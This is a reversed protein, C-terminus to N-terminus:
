VLFESCAESPLTPSSSCFGLCSRRRLSVHSSSIKSSGAFFSASLYLQVRCLRKVPKYTPSRLALAHWIDVILFRNLARGNKTIASPKSNRFLNSYFSPISHESILASGTFCLGFNEAPFHEHPLIRLRPWWYLQFGPCDVQLLSMSNGEWALNPSGPLSTLATRRANSTPWLLPSALAPYCTRYLRPTRLIPYPHGPVTNCVYIEWARGLVFKLKWNWDTHKKLLYQEERKSSPTPSPLILGPLSDQSANEGGDQRIQYSLSQIAVSPATVMADPHGLFIPLSWVTTLEPIHRSLVRNTEDLNRFNDKEESIDTSAGILMQASHGRASM